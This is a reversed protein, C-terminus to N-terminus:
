TKVIMPKLLTTLAWMLFYSGWTTEVLEVETQNIKYCCGWFIGNEFYDSNLVNVISQKAHKAYTEDQTLESLSLLAVSAIVAASADIMDDTQDLQNKPITNMRSSLWYDCATKAHSLYPEGWHKAGTVLGLMAWAQGRSWNGAIDHSHFTGNEFHAHAHFAGSETSLANLLTDLHQRAITEHEALLSIVAALSDISIEQNGNKGGGMDTGVPICQLEPDYSQAFVNAAQKLLDQTATDQGLALGYWFILSRNITNAELKSALSQAITQAQTLDAADQTILARLWWCGAWFGGVWSGGSSAFWPKNNMAYIPFKNQCQEQIDTLRQLLLNLAHQLEM